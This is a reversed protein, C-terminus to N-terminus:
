KHPLGAEALSKHECLHVPLQKLIFTVDINEWVFYKSQHKLVTGGDGSPAINERLAIQLAVPLLHLAPAFALDSAAGKRSCRINLNFLVAAGGPFTPFM